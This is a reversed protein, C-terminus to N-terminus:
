FWAGSPIAEPKKTISKIILKTKPFRTTRKIRQISRVVVEYLQRLFSSIERRDDDECLYLIHQSFGGRIVYNTSCRECNECSPHFPIKRVLALKSFLETTDFMLDGCM